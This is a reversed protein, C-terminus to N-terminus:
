SKQNKYFQPFCLNSLILDLPCTSFIKKRKPLYKEDWDSSGVAYNSINGHYRSVTYSQQLLKRLLVISLRENSGSLPLIRSTKQSNLTHNKDKSELPAHKRADMVPSVIRAGQKTILDRFSMQLDLVQLHFSCTSSRWILKLSKVQPCFM